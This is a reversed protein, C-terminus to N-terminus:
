RDVAIAVVDPLPVPDAAIALESAGVGLFGAFTNVAQSYDQEARVRESVASLHKMTANLSDMITAVGQSVRNQMIGVAETQLRIMSEISRIDEQLYQLEEFAMRVDNEVQWEKAKLDAKAAAVRAQAAATQRKILWPNPIPVRLTAQYSDGDGPIDLLSTASGPINTISGTLTRYQWMWPANTLPMDTYHREFSDDRGYALRLEPDRINAAFVNDRAAETARVGERLDLIELNNRLAIKVAGDATIPLFQVEADPRAFEDMAERDAAMTPPSYDRRTACAQLLALGLCLFTM